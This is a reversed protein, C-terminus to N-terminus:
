VHLDAPKLYATGMGITNLRAKTAAQLEKLTSMYETSAPQGGQGNAKLEDLRKFLRNCKSDMEEITPLEIIVLVRGAEMHQQASEVTSQAARCIENEMVFTRNTSTKAAELLETLRARLAPNYSYKGALPGFFSGQNMADITITNEM